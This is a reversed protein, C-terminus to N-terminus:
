KFIGDSKPAFDADLGLAHNDDGTIYTETDTRPSISININRIFNSGSTYLTDTRSTGATSGVPFNVVTRVFEVETDGKYDVTQVTATVTITKSKALGYPNPFSSNYEIRDLSVTFEFMGGPDVVGLQSSYEVTRRHTVRDNIKVYGLKVNEANFTINDRVHMDVTRFVGEIEADEAKLKGEVIEVNNEVLTLSNAFLNGLNDVTFSGDNIDISGRHIHVNGDEDVRFSDAINISGNKVNILGEIEASKAVLNGDSDVSFNGNNIDISGKKITINGETDVKFNGSNIDISGKTITVNGEEDVRFNANYESDGGIAIMTTIHLKGNQIKCGGIDGSTATIKGKVNIQGAELVEKIEANDAILSQAVLSNIAAASAEILGTVNMKRVSLSDIAAEIFEASKAEILDATIYQTMLRGVVLKDTYDADNTLETINSGSTLVTDGLSSKKTGLEIENYRNTLVNYETLIVTKTTKVNLREYEVTVTDGLLVKELEKYIEYEPSDSLKIFSVTIEEKIESLRNNKLYDQAKGKLHEISPTQEFKDTLNLTLIKQYEDNEKGEVYIIGNKVDPDDKLVTLDLYEELVSDDAQVKKPFDPEPIPDALYYFGEGFYEEYKGLTPNYVVKMSDYEEENENVDKILYITYPVPENIPTNGELTNLWQKNFPEGSRIKALILKGNDLTSKKYWFITDMFDGPTKIQVAKKEAIPVIPDGGNHFEDLRVKSLWNSYMPVVDKVIYMEEYALIKDIMTENRSTHFFPFIGTFMKESSIEQELELMNKGYKISMGRDAGRKNVLKVDYMDFIFEGKYLDLLSGQSGALLGRMSSPTRSYMKSNVTKDTSFIFPNTIVSTTQITELAEALSEAKFPPVTYGNMDYSIHEANITVVGSMPKSISYIRFAQPRDYMNAKTFIFRRLKIEAYHKGTLPYEMELEFGGNLEETVVCSTADSLVGIGLTTFQKEDKDFLIIM